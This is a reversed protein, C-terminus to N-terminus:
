HCDPFFSVFRSTDSGIVGWGIRWIVLTSLVLGFREHLLESGIFGFGSLALVIFLLAQLWHYIRTPADWIKLM